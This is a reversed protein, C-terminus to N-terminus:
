DSSEDFHIGHQRLMGVITSAHVGLGVNLFQHEVQKQGNKGKVEPVFGLAHSSTQVQIGWIRGKADFTPGGSQGILGPSSTEIHLLPFPYSAHQWAPNQVFRTLIGEIPFLPFAPVDIKFGAAAADWSIPTDQLPFGLKCLSTGPEFNTTPNKITPYEAVTTPDFTELRGIALDVGPIFRIDVLNSGSWWSSYNKVDTAKPPSLARLRTARAKASLAQDAKVADIEALRDRTANEAAILALCGEVVHAATLVWGDRNLVVYTAVVGKCNDGVTRVCTVVPRTFGRAKAYAAQFM